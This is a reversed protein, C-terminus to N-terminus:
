IKMLIGQLNMWFLGRDASLRTTCGATKETYDVGRDHHESATNSSTTSAPECALYEGDAGNTHGDLAIEDDGLGFADQGEFGADRASTIKNVRSARKFAMPDSDNSQSAGRKGKFAAKGKEKAM